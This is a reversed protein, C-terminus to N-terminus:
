LDQHWIDDIIEFGKEALTKDVWSRDASGDKAATLRKEDKENLKKANELIVEAGSLPVVVAGDADAVIIDGPNVTVGGCFVPVNIEGPGEKYPGCPTTGAAYVPFDMKSLADIDRVSGDVIIGAAKKQYKLYTTMIEGILARTDGGDNTVVLMDGQQCYNLAANLMLNDGKSCKVTYAPGCVIPKTPASVLKIRPHMACNKDMVDAVNSAPIKEFQKILETDPLERKLYIKKEM